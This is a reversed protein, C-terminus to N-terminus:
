ALEYALVQAAVGHLVADRVASARVEVHAGPLRASMLATEAAHCLREGLLATDGSLVVQPLDLASVIAALPAGLRAGAEDRVADRATEDPANECREALVALWVHVCTRSGCVCERGADGGVDLHALERATSADATYATIIATSTVAGLRVLLFEDTGHGAEARAVVDAELGTHVPLSATAPQAALAANCATIEHRQDLGIGLGIGLVAADSQEVLRAAIAAVSAAVDADPDRAVESRLLVSGDPACVAGAIWNRGTLDIAISQVARRDIELMVSPKGVRVEQSQGTEIVIGTALLERIVETITPRALGTMRALDARSATEERLLTQLVVARNHRRTGHVPLQQATARASLSVTEAM